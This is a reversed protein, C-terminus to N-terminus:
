IHILSLQGGRGRRGRVTTTRTTPRERAPEPPPPVSHPDLPSRSRARSAGTGRRGRGPTQSLRSRSPSAEKTNRSTSPGRAQTAEPSQRTRPGAAGAPPPLSAFSPAGGNKVNVIWRKSNFQIADKAFDEYYIKTGSEVYYLGNYDVEGRTKHWIDNDDQYYVSDWLVYPLYDVPGTGFKVEVQIGGKKFTHEPKALYKEKSVDQLTWEEEGYPSQYLTELILQMEIASKARGESISLSPIPQMGIRPIGLHRSYFLLVAEERESKWYDIHDALDKSNSEYHRLIREQVADLREKLQQTTERRKM